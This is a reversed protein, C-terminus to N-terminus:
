ALEIRHDMEVSYGSNCGLRWRPGSVTALHGFPTGFVDDILPEGPAQDALLM